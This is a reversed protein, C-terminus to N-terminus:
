FFVTTGFRSFLACTYPHYPLVIIPYAYRVLLLLHLSLLIREPLKYRVMMNHEANTTSGPSEPFLVFCM